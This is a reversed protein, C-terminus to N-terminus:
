ANWDLFAGGFSIIAVILLGCLLGMGLPIWATRRWRAISYLATALWVTIIVVVGWPPAILGSAFAMVGFVAQLGWGVLSYLLHRPSIDGANSDPTAEM